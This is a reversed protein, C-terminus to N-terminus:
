MVMGGDVTFVQGTIYDSKDSALFTTINAIDSAKGMRKMPIVGLISTKQEESLISTMDTEIFGPAVVNVTVNRAAFEKALSKSLGIIGAKAASYNAQGANGILGIVSAINIIRGWRKRTMPRALHKAFTFVSKLNTNLVADWDEEGMRFVLNDKTIGANNVLINILGHKELLAECAKEVSSADSVDLAHAEASGGSSEIEKAVAGCSSESRSVCIIHYGEEALTLAIAKGIGRGAGTVLAIKKEELDSM